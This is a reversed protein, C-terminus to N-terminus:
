KKNKLKKDFSKEIDIDSMIFVDGRTSVIDAGFLVVDLSAKNERRAIYDDIEHTNTFDSIDVGYKDEFIITNKDM